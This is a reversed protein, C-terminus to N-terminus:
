SRRSRYFCRSAYGGLICLLSLFRASRCFVAPRMGVWFALALLFRGCLPFDRENDTRANQTPVRGATKAPPRPNRATENNIKRATGEPHTRTGSNKGTAAATFFCRSAYGGLLCPGSFSCRSRSCVAGAPLFLPVRVWGSHLQQKRNSSSSSNRAIRQKM